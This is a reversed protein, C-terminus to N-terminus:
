SLFLLQNQHLNLLLCCIYWAKLLATVFLHLFLVMLDVSFALVIIVFYLTALQFIYLEKMTFDQLIKLKMLLQQYFRLLMKLSLNDNSITLNKLLKNILNEIFIDEQHISSEKVTEAATPEFIDELKQENKNEEFINNIYIVEIQFYKEVLDVIVDLFQEDTNKVSVVNGKIDVSIHCSINNLEKLLSSISLNKPLSVKFTLNKM